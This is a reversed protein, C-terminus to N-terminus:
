PLSQHSTIEVEDFYKKQARAEQPLRCGIVHRASDVSSAVEDFAKFGRRKVLM